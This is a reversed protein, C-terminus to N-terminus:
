AESKGKEHKLIEWALRKCKRVLMAKRSVLPKVIPEERSM